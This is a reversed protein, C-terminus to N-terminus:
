RERAPRWATRLRDWDEETDVDPPPASGGGEVLVLADRHARVVERGGMDAELALLEPFTERGLLAPHGQRDGYLAMVVPAGTERRADAAARITEPRIGPQDALLIVAADVTDPLASIGAALSTGQGEEYRPNHVSAVPLDRLAGRVAADHAGTVVIVPGVGADLARQVVHVVLPLGDLMLLQKPRGLRRSLGGALVVVAIESM